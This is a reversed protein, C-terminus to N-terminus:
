IRAEEPREREIVQSDRRCSAPSIAEKEKLVQLGNMGAMKRDLVMAEIDVNRIRGMADMGYVVTVVRYGEGKLAERLLKRIDAEDDTILVTLPSRDATTV